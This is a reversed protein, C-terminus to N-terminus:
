KDVEALAILMNAVLEAEPLMPSPNYIAQNYELKPYVRCDADIVYELLCNRAAIFGAFDNSEFARNNTQDVKFYDLSYAKALYEFDPVLYGGEATTGVMNKDFYLEQFQTIMGLTKNNIIIVKIPLDYQKILMLSQLAMHAGGDGSISYITASKNLEAFAVGLSIPLASGMAGLGGSTYFHQNQTLKLMQMTWMQNQGVDACFSDGDQSIQNLFTILDYPASKIQTRVIEQAQNYRAKLQALYNLWTNDTFRSVRSVLYTLASVLDGHINQTNNLRSHKLENNDIDLHIVEGSSAFSAVVGGTQRLDLRSGLVLVLDANAVAMNACRNGYSGLTGLYLELSEDCATKGQLSSVFPLQSSQLFQSLLAFGNAAAVGGGVLVLPRQASRLKEVISSLQTAFEPSVSQHSSVTALNALSELQVFERQVNMPLDIVVPGKRGSTAINIAKAFEAPLDEIKDLLTAYKTIPKLMDVINTEQFGLQRIPKDYKYEYANVQGTIFVVPVSDFFADAIGTILNTAGPGSTAIAVGIRGSKRAYGVAAFAATQEHYVQVFKMQPHKSISDALHTVMGGQYGFVVEVGNSALLEVIYDAAKIKTM